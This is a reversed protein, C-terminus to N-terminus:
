QLTAHALWTKVADLAENRKGTRHLAEQYVALQVDASTGGEAITRVHMLADLCGLAEADEGVLHVIGDVADRVSLARREGLDVFSGHIGYRQARWKNEDAIARDVAGVDRNHHPNRVLFRVLARFLAAIAVTDAVRTCSDPARLELTPLKRSPRITWWVYSSDTIARASVLADVYREYAAASEFMEPLGTRPLEDYAALRYGMLGTQKAGWFPSSTSLAIFHPIYPVLRRMVNVREDPDPLEVHVHLGCVMNREGLMKLENMVGDYRNARTARVGDWTATPHTGAAIVGLGHGAAVNAVTRRLDKLQDLASGTGTTPQTAIELQSQLMEVSISDGLHEKLEGFFGSPMRRQVSKTNADVVFFEEEIGFKYTNSM